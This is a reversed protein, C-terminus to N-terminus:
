GGPVLAPWRLTWAGAALRTRAGAAWPPRICSSPEQRSMEPVKRSSEVSVMQKGNGKGLFHGDGDSRRALM